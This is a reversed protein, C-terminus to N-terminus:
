GSSHDLLRDLVHRLDPDEVPQRGTLWDVIEPDQASLLSAFAARQSAGAQPYDRDLYRMLLVDLERMGRRCRWRLAGPQM